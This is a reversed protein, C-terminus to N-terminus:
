GGMTPLGAPCWRWFFHTVLMGVTMGLLFILPPFATTTVVTFRSLTTKGRKLAIGEIVAFSVIFVLLWAVWIWPFTQDAM